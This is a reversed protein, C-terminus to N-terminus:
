VTELELLVGYFKSASFFFISLFAVLRLFLLRIVVLVCTNKVYSEFRREARFFSRTCFWGPNLMFLVLIALPLDELRRIGLGGFPRRDAATERQRRGGSQHHM